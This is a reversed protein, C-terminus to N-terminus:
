EIRKKKFSACIAAVKDKDKLQCQSKTLNGKHRDDGVYKAFIMM